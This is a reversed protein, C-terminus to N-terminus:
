NLKDDSPTSHPFPAAMHEGLDNRAQAAQVAVANVGALTTRAVAQQQKRNAEGRLFATLATLLAVIAPILTGWEAANM